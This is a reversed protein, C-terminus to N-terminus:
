AEMGSSTELGLRRDQGMEAEHRVLRFWMFMVFGGFVFWEITYGLNQFARLDLGGSSVGEVVAKQLGLDPATLSVWADYVKHPVKNVLSAASIVGVQGEPLGGQASVGNEGPVESAQLAGTVTVPGSPAAPVKAADAQGPLWGRVVPLVSGKEIRLLGLVYFGAGDNQWRDPVVLQGVYRGEAHVRKGLTSQTVPLMSTVPHAAEAAPSKALEKAARSHHVRDEFRSLQWSGMYLCLPIALLAFLTGAVWQPRLLFRYM